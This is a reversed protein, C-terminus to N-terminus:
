RRKRRKGHRPPAPSQQSGGGGRSTGTAASGGGQREGAVMMMSGDAVRQGAGDAPLPLKPSRQVELFLHSVTPFRKKIAGDLRGITAEVASALVEDRFDVSAAVLVNDPGLHMTRLENIALITGEQGMEAGIIERIKLQMEPAVAEGILLAKTEIAMFAAVGALILGIVISAVADGAPWDLVQSAILGLLAVLLGAIAAMDELLVTYLAPDKSGRLAEVVGDEGRRRDFERWAVLLAATEFCLALGLVVYNVHPNTVPTPHQLKEIGEYLAVGSGLSFLLVAVVFAWFYLEKAYGFPHRADAPRRSRRIGLLLLAQNGTDAISHIAESLMAASGTWGAAFLKAVAIAGNGALAALVM